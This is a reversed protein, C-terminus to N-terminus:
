RSSAATVAADDCISRLTRLVAAQLETDHFVTEVDATAAREAAQQFANMVAPARGAVLAAPHVYSARALAPTNGLLKAAADFASLSRDRHARKAAPPVAGAIVACAVVTAGWTRFVKATVAGGGHAHLYSNLTASDIHRWRPPDPVAFIRGTPEAEAEMLDTLADAAPVDEVVLHHSIHEKGVFDFVMRSGDVVVQGRRLTTLGYTDNERAYRENGVRFLGRDLLRVAAATGRRLATDTSATRSRTLHDDVVVRLRPLASAFELMRFYKDRQARQQALQSYRYQTRGSADVGTAQVAAEPDASAWVHSWAPPIALRRLRDLVAADAVVVGDSLVWQEPRVASRHLGHPRVIHRGEPTM